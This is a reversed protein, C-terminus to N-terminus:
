DVGDAVARWPRNHLLVFGGRHDIDEDDFDFASAILPSDCPIVNALGVYAFHGAFVGVYEDM